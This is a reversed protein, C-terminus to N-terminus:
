KCTTDNLDGIGSNENAYVKNIDIITKPLPPLSKISEIISSKL